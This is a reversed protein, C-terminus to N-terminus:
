CDRYLKGRARVPDLLRTDSPAMAFGQPHPPRPEMGIAAIVRDEVYYTCYSVFMLSPVLGPDVAAVENLVATRAAADLTDFSAAGHARARDDLAALGAVLALDLGPMLRVVSAFRAGGALFGAGPLAGDPSPPIIADLAAALTRLEDASFQHGTGTDSM